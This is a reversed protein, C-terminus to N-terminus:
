VNVTSVEEFSFWEIIKDGVWVKEWISIKDGQVTDYEIDWEFRKNFREMRNIKIDM